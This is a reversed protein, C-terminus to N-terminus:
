RYRVGWGVEMGGGQMREQVFATHQLLLALWELAAAVVEPAQHPGLCAGLGAMLGSDGVLDSRVSSEGLQLSPPPPAFLSRFLHATPM